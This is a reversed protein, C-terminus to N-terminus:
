EWVPMAGTVYSRPANIGWREPDTVTDPRQQRKAALKNRLIFPLLTCANTGKRFGQSNQGYVSSSRM